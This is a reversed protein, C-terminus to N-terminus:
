DVDWAFPFAGIAGTVDYKIIIIVCTQQTEVKKKKEREKQVSCREKRMSM